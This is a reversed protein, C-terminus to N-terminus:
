GDLRDVMLGILRQDEKVVKIGKPKNQNIMFSTNRVTKGFALCNKYRIVEWAHDICKKIHCVVPLVTVGAPLIQPCIMNKCSPGMATIMKLKKIIM